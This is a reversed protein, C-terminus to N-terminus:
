RHLSGTGVNRPGIWRRRSRPICHYRGSHGGMRSNYHRQRTSHRSPGPRSGPPTVQCVLPRGTYSFGLHSKGNSTPNSPPHMLQTPYHRPRLGPWDGHGRAQSSAPSALMGHFSQDHSAVIPMHRLHIGAEVTASTGSPPAPTVIDIETLGTIVPLRGHARATPPIM